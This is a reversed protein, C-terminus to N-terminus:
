RRAAEFCWLSKYTRLFVQGDSVALSACTIEDAASNVAIEDLAPTAKLVFVEASQNPLLLNGGALVISSWSGGISGTGNLRREELKKGTALDLCVASGFTTVLFIHGRSIVGSGVCEKPFHTRWLVHSATVDGDGGLRVATARTGGGDHPRGLAVLVDGSLAPSAFAQEPMNKVTWLERGTRPDYGTVRLPHVVVLEDRGNVRAVLPTSWSGLYGGAGRPDAAMMADDFRGAPPKKPPEAPAPPAPEGPTRAGGGEARPPTVKWIIKGTQMECAVLVANTGPGANVICLDEYIVPSAGSGQWSDVEGLERRWLERGSAADYCFLGPSGFYAAVRRGDTAPSASCYPNQGNTPERQPWTVGSQWLLKGDGRAFCMVTRRDNKEIAQTVFVRDGLVVPTSNGRDPLPTRWRVNRTQGWETPVNGDTSVGTGAPGRWAPWDEAVAPGPPALLAIM